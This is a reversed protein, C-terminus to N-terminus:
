TAAAQEPRRGLMAMLEGVLTRSFTWLWAAYSVAGLAVLLALRPPAPMPPLARDVLTVVAAM